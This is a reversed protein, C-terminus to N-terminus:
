SPFFAQPMTHLGRSSHSPHNQMSMARMPLPRTHPPGPPFDYTDFMPLGHTINMSIDPRQHHMIPDSMRYSQGQVAMPPHLGEMSYGPPMSYHSYDPPMWQSMLMDEQQQRDQCHLDHQMRARRFNAEHASPRKDHSVSHTDDALSPIDLESQTMAVACPDTDIQQM